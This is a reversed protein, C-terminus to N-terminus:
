PRRNIKDRETVTLIMGRRKFKVDSESDWQNRIKIMVKEKRRRKMTGTKDLKYQTETDTM